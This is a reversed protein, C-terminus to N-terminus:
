PSSPTAPQGEATAARKRPVTIRSPAKPAPPPAYLAHFQQVLKVYEETERYPPPRGYRQVSQEGANFAALARPIDRDFLAILDRLYQTGVRVNIAPDFLQDEVSRKATAVVGYREGTEPIIQMLGIAGKPSVARPDFASEVAIVAKVLAADVGFARANKDIM